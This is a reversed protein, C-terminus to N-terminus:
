WVDSNGMVNSNGVSNGVWLTHMCAPISAVQHLAEEAHPPPSEATVSMSASLSLSLYLSLTHTHTHTHTHARALSLSLSLSLSLPVCVTTHSQRTVHPPHRPTAGSCPTCALQIAQSHRAEEAHPPPTIRGHPEAQHRPTHSPANCGILTHM